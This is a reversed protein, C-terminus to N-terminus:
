PAGGAGDSSRQQIWPLVIALLYFKSAHYKNDLRRRNRELWGAAGPLVDRAQAASAHVQEFRCRALGCLDFRFSGKHAVYPLRSFRTEIHRRVLVKNAGTVPDVMRDTPVQRYIWDRLRRDCFPYALRLSLASTTYLGKAFASASEAISIMMARREDGSTASAIESQFVALRARSLEAIERGFLADVEADTFRSGPFLREVPDMQLTSLAFCLRFSRDVLPLESSLAPSLRLGRAMMSLVRQQRAM